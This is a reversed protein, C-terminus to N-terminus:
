EDDSDDLTLLEVVKGDKSVVSSPTAKARGASGPTAAAKAPSGNAVARLPTGHTTGINPSGFGNAVKAPSASAGNM